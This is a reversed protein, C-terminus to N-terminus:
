MVGARVYDRGKFHEHRREASSRAAASVRRKVRPPHARAFIEATAKTSRGHPLM